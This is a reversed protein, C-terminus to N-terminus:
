RMYAEICYWVGVTLCFLAFLLFAACLLLYRFRPTM